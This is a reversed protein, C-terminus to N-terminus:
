RGTGLVHLEPGTPLLALLPAPVPVALAPAYGLAVAAADDALPYKAGTEVVLYLGMGATGPAPLTRVLAGGGPPASFGDAANPGAVTDPEAVPPAQAASAPVMVLRYDITDTGTALAACPVQGTWSPLSEPLEPPQAIATPELMTARSLASLDIPIAQVPDEGYAQTARPDGLILAAATENVPVLGGTMVLFYQRPGPEGTVLVQGVTAEGASASATGRGPIAFPGIDPGVPVTDLWSGTVPIPPVAAYGLAATVWGATIKMRSGGHVLHSTGDPGVVLAGLEDADPQSVPQDLRVTVHPTIRGDVATTTTACVLWTRGGAPGPLLDPAGPIGIRGGHPVAALDKANVAVTKFEDPFLLRASAYNLVPHLRGDALVYRNGTEKEIILVGPQRWGPSSGPRILALLAVGGLVLLALVIGIILGIPTRRLPPRPADPEARVLASRLRGAAFSYAEVQDRRSPM